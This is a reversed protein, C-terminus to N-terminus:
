FCGCEITYQGPPEIFRVFVGDDDDVGRSLTVGFTSVSFVDSLHDNTQFINTVSVCEQNNHVRGFRSEAIVELLSEGKKAM